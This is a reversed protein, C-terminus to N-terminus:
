LSDNGKWSQQDKCKIHWRERPSYHHPSGSISLFLCTMGQLCRIIYLTSNAPRYVEKPIRALNRIDGAPKIEALSARREHKDTGAFCFYKQKRTQSLNLYPKRQSHPSFQFISRGHCQFCSFLPVPASQRAILYGWPLRQQPIQKPRKSAGM